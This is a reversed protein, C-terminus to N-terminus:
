MNITIGIRYQVGPMPYNRVIEYRNDFLNIVEGKFQISTKGADFNQWISCGHESYAPMRYEPGNYSNSFYEGSFFMNYSFNLYETSFYLICSGSTRPTYPIQHNYTTGDAETKDMARNYTFSGTIGTKANGVQSSIDIGTEVGKTIVTGINRMMWVATSKGPVAVIKDTINNLFFDAFLSVRCNGEWTNSENSDWILGMSYLEAKEPKLDRRGVQEFYLDNFTPLRYTSKASSRWHLGGDPTLKVNVGIAPSLNNYDDAAERIKTTEHSFIHNLRANVVMHDNVYKLSLASNLTMREPSVRNVSNDTLTSLRIDEAVSASLHTGFTYMAAVSAYLEQKTYRNDTVGDTNNVISNRYRDRSNSYKLNSLTKWRHGISNRFSAQIFADRNWVRENAANQNYLINSPLGQESKYMYGKVSLHADQNLDAILSVETKLRDVDSNNRNLTRTLVGNNQVYPYNGDTSLWEASVSTMIKNSVQEAMSVSTLKTNFSGYKIDTILQHGQENLLVPKKSEVNLTTASASLVAPQLIDNDIGDILKISEIQISSMRGLDIQGTQIDTQVVGDYAVATHCAGLGRVSITKLGGIGGYDKVAVGSFFKLADSIQMVNASEMRGYDMQATSSVALANNAKRSEMITVETVQREAITDSVIQAHIGIGLNM